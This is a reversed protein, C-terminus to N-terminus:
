SLGWLRLRDTLAAEYQCMADLQRLMAEQEATPLDGFKPAALFARLKALKTTVDNREELVRQQHPQLAAADVTQHNQWINQPRVPNLMFVADPRQAERMLRYIDEAAPQPMMVPQHAAAEALKTVQVGIGDLIEVLRDLLGNASLIKAQGVDPHGLTGGDDTASM